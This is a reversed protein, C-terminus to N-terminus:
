SNEFLWGASLLFRKYVLRRLNSGLRRILTQKNVGRIDREKLNIILSISIYDSFVPSFVSIFWGASIRGVEASSLCWGAPAYHESILPKRERGGTERLNYSSGGGVRQLYQRIHDLKETKKNM